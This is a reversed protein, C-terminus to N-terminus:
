GYPEDPTPSGVGSIVGVVESLGRDEMLESLSNEGLRGRDVLSCCKKNLDWLASRERIV